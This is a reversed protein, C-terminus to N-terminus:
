ASSAPSSVERIAAFMPAVAEDALGEGALAQRLQQIRQGLQADSLGELAAGHEHVANVFGRRRSSFLLRSRALAGLLRDVCRDLWGQSPETRQPYVGRAIGPRLPASSM